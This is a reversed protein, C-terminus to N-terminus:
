PTGWEKIREERVLEWRKNVRDLKPQIRERVRRLVSEVDAPPNSSTWITQVAAAIEDRYESWVGIRPVAKANPSEALRRFTRIYPNPHRAYFEESVERLPSFKGQGLCLEEMNDQRQVFKIFDWAEEVHRAGRPIVLMDCEVVTSPADPNYTESPFPAVAWDMNPGYEKIFSSMWVGQLQMAVREAMFSNSPSAFQGRYTAEFLRLKRQDYDKIYSQFWTFARISEPTDCLLEKGDASALHGGFWFSWFPGWWGPDTPIFGMQIYNGDADTRTLKRAYEDLEAITQPPRDPDLGAERFLRRNYHLAMTAPTSPLGWVYGRYSCGDLISPLYQDATIGDRKMLPGLPTLAGRDAYDVVTHSWFGAVDPPNGGATALLLKRDIQSMSVFRVTIRDQSSNYRDVVRQMAEKEFNTWKEWYTIEVRQSVADAEAGASAAALLMAFGAVGRRVRALLRPMM